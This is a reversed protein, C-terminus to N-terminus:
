VGGHMLAYEAASSGASLLLLIALTKLHGYAAEVMAGFVWLWYLNFALHLVNAHPLASTLLRWLQGRRIGIDEMLVSVDRGIWWAATVAIALIATGAVIPYRHFERLPPPARM